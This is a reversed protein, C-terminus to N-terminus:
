AEFFATQYAGEVEDRMGDLAEFAMSYNSLAAILRELGGRLEEVLQDGPGNGSEPSLQKAVRAKYFLMLLAYSSQMLCCAFSPMTRPLEFRPQLGLQVSRTRDNDTPIGYLPKPKPLCEFLRSTSLGARLCVKTSYENSYPFRNTMSYQPMSRYDPPTSSPSSSAAYDGPLTRLSDLDSCLCSQNDVGSQSRSPQTSGTLGETTAGATTLDCHKKIFIPIDSFARFRHTKIKASFLKIKTIMRISNATESEAQDSHDATQAFVPLLESQELVSSAWVDLQQMREYIYPMNSRSKVCKKLEVIFQSASVLVKQSQMLLPWGEPDASFRPLPTTFQPDNPVVAPPSTSVISGQLVSYYTMWWARRRAEAFESHDEGLSHLSMDLAIALAQSARSKMKLINGRQAYEYVSLILLALISELEVPTRPHLPERDPLPREGSLAKSPDTSSALLEGDAEISSTALQAFQNAYARRRLVSSASSPEADSPHPILALIASIALSLPSVPRYMLVPGESSSQSSSEPISLPQDVCRPAVRPPLVPLYAHIFEYYANLIGSESGYTRVSCQGPIAPPSPTPEMQLQSRNGDGISFIDSFMSQVDSPFDLQRLGAGPMSLMDIQDFIIPSEDFSSMSTVATVPSGNRQLNAGPVIATKSKKKRPGGRKSPLYSCERGKNICNRCPEKGDCRTRSARCALCAVKVPPKAFRKRIVAPKSATSQM